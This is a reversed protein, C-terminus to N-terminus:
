TEDFDGQFLHVDNLATHAIILAAASWGMYRTGGAALTQGNLYEPFSWPNGEKDDLSCAHILGQLFRKARPQQGRRCLDSIYFGSIMPWLGGNHYEHPQNRFTFSFTMQLEQWDRDKPEIIPYFAPLLPKDKQVISDIFADVQTCQQEDAIQFLSALVNAFSDFRYSYGSPSFAPMWYDGCRLPAAQQGKSFFTEHYIDGSEVPHDNFWYNAQILHKLHTAKELLLHDTNRHIYGHLRALDNLAQYYLLQDYLVYGDLVYEDAWDGAKPVYLLGRNNYEWAGLLFRVKELVPLMQQLFENDRSAQWYQRCGIIFWLDADVRGTTGGYSVRGTAADVNSPIEGHPGQHAALTLLTRRLGAILDQEGSAIAALGMVVGDRAWTRRYNVSQTPTALFGTESNLNRLLSIAQSYGPLNDM